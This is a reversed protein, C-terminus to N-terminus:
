LCRTINKVVGAIVFSIGLYQYQLLTSCSKCSERMLNSYIITPVLGSFILVRSLMVACPLSIGNIELAGEVAGIHMSADLM